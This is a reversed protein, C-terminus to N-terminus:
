TSQSAKCTDSKMATIHIRTLHDTGRGVRRRGRPHNMEVHPHESRRRRTMLRHRHTRVPAFGATQVCLRVCLMTARVQEEEAEMGTGFEPVSRAIASFGDPEIDKRIVPIQKHIDLARPRFSLGAM